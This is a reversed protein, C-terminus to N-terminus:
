ADGSHNASPAGSKRVKAFRRDSALFSELMFPILEPIKEDEGYAQRYLDAYLQLSRNLEPSAMFTIKVPVRDPLRGLKLDPM